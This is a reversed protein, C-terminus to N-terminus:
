PKFSGRIFQAAIGPQAELAAMAVAPVGSSADGGGLVEAFNMKERALLARFEADRAGATRGAMDVFTRACFAM